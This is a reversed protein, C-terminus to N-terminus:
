RYDRCTFKLKTFAINLLQHLGMRNIKKEEIAIITCNKTSIVRAPKCVVCCMKFRYQCNNRTATIDMRRSACLTLKLITPARM